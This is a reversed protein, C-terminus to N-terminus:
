YAIEPYKVAMIDLLDLSERVYRMRETRWLICGSCHDQYVHGHQPCPTVGM